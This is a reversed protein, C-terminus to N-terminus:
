KRLRWSYEWGFAFPCGAPVSCLYIFSMLLFVGSSVATLFLVNDDVLAYYTHVFWISRHGLAPDVVLHVTLTSAFCWGDNMFCEYFCAGQVHCDDVVATKRGGCLHLWASSFIFALQCRLARLGFVCFLINSKSSHQIYMQAVERVCLSVALVRARLIYTM